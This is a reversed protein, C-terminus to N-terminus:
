AAQAEVLRPRVERGRAPPPSLVARGIGAHARMRALGEPGAATLGLLVPVSFRDSSGIVDVQAGARMWMRLRVDDFNSLFAEIGNAVSYELGAAFMGQLIRMRDRDRGHRRVLADDICLRTIEWVFPSDFAAADPVTDGFVDALLTPGSTPMLRACAYLEQGSADTHMMYAPSMDDYVDREEPGNTEVWNLEGCFVRKRLEFMKRLLSRHAAFQDPELIFYM